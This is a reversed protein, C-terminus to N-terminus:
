VAPRDAPRRRETGPYLARIPRRANTSTSTQEANGFADQADAEKRKKGFGFM